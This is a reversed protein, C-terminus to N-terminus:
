VDLEQSHHDLVYSTVTIVVKKTNHTPNEQDMVTNFLLAIPQKINQPIDKIIDRSLAGEAQLILLRVTPPISAKHNEMRFM